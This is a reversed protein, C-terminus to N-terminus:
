SHHVYLPTEKAATQIINKTIVRTERSYASLLSLECLTNIIRPIGGSLKYLERLAAKEFAISPSSGARQIRHLIYKEVEPADLPNLKCYIQVRQALQRLERKSLKEELEPQGVLIIQLLKHTETELNSLLRTMELAEFPLNQAEDIIVVANRGANNNRILFAGLADLQSKVTDSDCECGFDRNISRLLDTTSLLPNLILSTSIDDGLKNLLSRISTTKGTGVEGTLLLFGKREQIGYFLTQIIGEHQESPYLFHTDPTVNFPKEALGFFREYM